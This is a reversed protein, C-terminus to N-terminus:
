SVVKELANSEEELTDLAIAGFRIAQARKTKAVDYHILKGIRSYDEGQKWEKRMGIKAAMEDLEEETDAFMHCMVMRGFPWMPVGM